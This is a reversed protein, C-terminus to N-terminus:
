HCVPCHWFRRGGQDGRALCRVSRADSRFNNGLASKPGILWAWLVVNEDTTPSPPYTTM